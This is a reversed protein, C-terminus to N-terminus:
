KEQLAKTRIGEKSRLKKEINLKISHHIMKKRIDQDGTQRPVPTQTWLHEKELLVKTRIEEISRLKKEMNLSLKVPHHIMMKPIERGGMEQHVLTQIQIHEKEQLVKM